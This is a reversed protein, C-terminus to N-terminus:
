CRSGMFLFIVVYKCICDLVVVYTLTMRLYFFVHRCICSVQHSLPIMPQGSLAAPLMIQPVIRQIAHPVNLYATQTSLRDAEGYAYPNLGNLLSNTSNIKGDPIGNIGVPTAGPKSPPLPGQM